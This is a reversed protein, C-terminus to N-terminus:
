NVGQTQLETEEPKVEGRLVRHWVVSFEPVTAALQIGINYLRMRNEYQAKSNFTAGYQLGERRAELYISLAQGVNTQSLKPNTLADELEYINVDRWNRDAAPMPTNKVATKLSDVSALYVNEEIEGTVLKRDLEALRATYKANNINEIYDMPSLKTSGTNQEAALYMSYGGGTYFLSLVSGDTELLSPDEKVAEWAEDTPTFGSRSTSVMSTLAAFGYTDIMKSMAENQDYGQNLLDHFEGSVVGSLHYEGTEDVFKTELKTSGPSIIQWLGRSLALSGSLMEADKVLQIQADRSIQGNADFYKEPQNYLLANIAGTMYKNRIEPFVLGQTLGTLTEKAWAPLLSGELSFAQNPDKLFPNIATRIEDPIMRTLNPLVSNLMNMPIQILPGFGPMGDNQLVINLSGVDMTAGYSNVGQGGFFSALPGVLPIGFVKKGTKSDVYIFPQDKDYENQGVFDYLWSSGETELSKLFLEAKYVQAPNQVALKGWTMLSNAWAQGFPFVFRLAHGFANRKGANYFMNEVTSSAHNNAAIRLDQMDFAGDGSAKKASSKIQKLTLAGWTGPMGGLTEEAIKVVKAAEEPSLAVIGKAVYDWHSYLFEPVTAFTKEAKSSWMYIRDSTAKFFNGGKVNSLVTEWDAKPVSLIKPEVEGSKWDDITDRWADRIDKLERAYNSKVNPNEPAEIEKRPYRKVIVEGNANIRTFKSELIIDIFNDKFGDTFNYVLTKVSYNSEGFLYKNLDDKTEYLNANKGDQALRLKDIENKGPGYWYFELVQQEPTLGNLKNKNVWGSIEKNVKRGTLAALVNNAIKSSSLRVVYEAIGAAFDKSDLNVSLYGNKKAFVPNNILEGPDTLMGRDSGSKFAEKAIEELESLPEIREREVYLDDLKTEVEDLKTQTQLIFEENKSSKITKELKMKQKYLDEIDLDITDLKATIESPQGFYSGTLDRNGRNLTKFNDANIKGYKKVFEKLAPGQETNLLASVIFHPNTLLSPHGTLYMRGQTELVNRIVYGIRFLVARRFFDHFVVNILNRSWKYADGFVSSDEIESITKGKRIMLRMDYPNIMSVTNSMHMDYIIAEGLDKLNDDVLEATEDITKKVAMEAMRKIEQNQAALSSKFENRLLKQQAQTMNEWGAAFTMLEEQVNYWIQYREESTRADMMRTVSKNKFSRWKAAKAGSMSIGFAGYTFEIMDILGLNMGEFDSTNYARTWPVLVNKRDLGWILTRTIANGFAQNFAKSYVPDNLKRINGNNDIIRSQWKLLRLKGLKVNFNSATLAETFIAKVESESAANKLRNVYEMPLKNRLITALRGGAEAPGLRNIELIADVIGNLGGNTVWNLTKDVNQVKVGDANIRMGIVDDFFELANDYTKIAGNPQYGYKDIIKQAAEKSQTVLKDRTTRLASQITEINEKRKYLTELAPNIEQEKKPVTKYGKSTTSSTPATERVLKLNDVKAVLEDVFFLANDIESKSAGKNKLRTATSKATKIQKNTALIEDDIEKVTKVPGSEYDKTSTKINNSEIIQKEVNLSTLEDTAIKVEDANKSTNIINDLQSIRVDIESVRGNVSKSARLIEADIAIKEAELQADIRDARQAASLPKSTTNNVSDFVAEEKISTASTKRAEELNKASNTLPTVIDGGERSVDNIVDVIDDGLEARATAELADIESETEAINLKATRVDTIGKGAKVTEAYALSNKTAFKIGTRAGKVAASVQGLGLFYLGIAMTDAITSIFEFEASDKEADFLQGAVVSGLNTRSGYEDITDWGYLQAQAKFKEQQVNSEDTIFFDSGTDIGETSDFSQGIVQGLTTGAGFVNAWAAAVEEPSEFENNANAITTGIINNAVDPIYDFAAFAVKTPVRAAHQFFGMQEEKVKEYNQKSLNNVAFREEETLNPNFASMLATDVSLTSDQSIVSNLADAQEKALPKIANTTLETAQPTGSYIDLKAM